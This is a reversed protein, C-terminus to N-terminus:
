RAAELEAYRNEITVIMEMMQVGLEKAGDADSTYFYKACGSLVSLWFEVSPNM